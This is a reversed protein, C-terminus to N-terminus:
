RLRTVGQAVPFEPIPDPGSLQALTGISWFRGSGSWDSVNGLHDYTRVQWQYQYGVAFTNRRPDLVQHAPLPPVGSSWPPCDNKQDELHISPDLVRWQIDAKLQTDTPDPDIFRWTFTVAM